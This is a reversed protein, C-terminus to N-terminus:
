PIRTITYILASLLLLFIVLVVASIILCKRRAVKPDDLTVVHYDKDPDFHDGYYVVAIPKNTLESLSEIKLQIPDEPVASSVSAPGISTTSLPMVFDRCIIWYFRDIPGTKGYFQYNQNKLKEVHFDTQFNMLKLISTM